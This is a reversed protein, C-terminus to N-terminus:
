FRFTTGFSFRTVDVNRVRMWWVGGQLSVSKSLDFGMNFFVSPDFSKASKQTGSAFNAVANENNLVGGAGMDLSFNGRNGVAPTANLNFIAYASLGHFRAFTNDTPANAFYGLQLGGTMNFMQRLAVQWYGGGTSKVPVFAFASIQTMMPDSPNRGKTRMGYTGSFVMGRVSSTGHVISSSSTGIAGALSYSSPMVSFSIMPKGIEIFEGTKANVVETVGAPLRDGDRYTFPVREGGKVPYYWYEQGDVLTVGVFRAVGAQQAHLVAPLVSLVCLAFYNTVKM